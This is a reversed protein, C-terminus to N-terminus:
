RWAGVAKDWPFVLLGNYLRSPPGWPQDPLKLFYRGWRSEKGSGDLRYRTAIGAVESIRFTLSEVWVNGKTFQAPDGCLDALPSYM